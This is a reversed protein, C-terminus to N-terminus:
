CLNYCHTLTVRQGDSLTIPATAPDDWSSVIWGNNEAFAPNLHISDTGLNHCFHHVAMLNCLDDTGGRSKLKRHHAAWNTPFLPFGCKECYGNCREWLAERDIM